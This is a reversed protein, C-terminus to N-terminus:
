RLDEEAAAMAVNLREMYAPDGGRDPHADMALELFRSRVIKLTALQEEIGLVKRWDDAPPPLAKFGAFARNVLDSSGWRDLGRIAAVTLALAHVNDVIARWRDCAMSLQEDKRVFYVAVGPDKPNRRNAYPLGDNRLEINTSLVVSRAGLMRLEDLLHDRTRGFSHQKFRAATRRKCRPVGAPWELPYAEASM